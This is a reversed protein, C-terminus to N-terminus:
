EHVKVIEEKRFGNDEMSLRCEMKVIRMQLQYKTDDTTTLEGIATVYSDFPTLDEKGVVTTLLDISQKIQDYFEEKKNM